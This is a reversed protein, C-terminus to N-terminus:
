TAATETQWWTDVIKPLPRRRSRTTGVDLSGHNIPERRDRPPAADVLRYNTPATSADRRLSQGAGSRRRRRTSSRSKHKAITQWFRGRRSLDSDRRFHDRRAWPSLDTRSILTAPSVLRYRRHVLFHGVAQHRVDLADHADGLAPLRRLQAACRQAQRDLRVHLSSFRISRAPGMRNAPTPRSARARAALSRPARFRSTAVRAGTCLSTASARAGAWAWLRTSSRRSRCISAAARGSTRTIVAVAGADIIREQLSKASLRRVRGFQTAGIRACAQM